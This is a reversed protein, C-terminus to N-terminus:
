QVNAKWINGHMEVVSFFLEGDGLALRQPSAITSIMSRRAGHLHLVSEVPGVPRKTAADLRRMWICRAGDREAVFYIADGSPSWVHEQEVAQDDTLAMWESPPVPSDRFPFLIIRSQDAGVFEAVSAWRGDPSLQGHAYFGSQQVDALVARAQRTTPDVVVLETVPGPRRSSFLVDGAPWSWTYPGVDESLTDAAGGAIARVVMTTRPGPGTWYAVNRGDPSMSPFHGGGTPTLRTERGTLLDRLWVSWDSSRNSQFVLTRGDASVSPWFDIAAADTVRELRGGGAAGTSRTLPLRHLNARRNQNAYYVTVGDETQVVAPSVDEGVGATLRTPVGAVTRGDPSVQLAWLSTVSGNQVSFVIKDNVWVDPQATGALGAEALLAAAGMATSVGTDVDVVWWDRVADDGTGRVGLTALLRGDPSWAPVSAWVLDEALRRSTGGDDDIVWLYSDVARGGTIYALAAGQPSFRPSHGQAVVFQEAGGLAPVTYIGGGNRESRYAIRSGDSSFHPSTADVDDHTVQVANGDPLPQVWIDLSDGGRDSAYALLSGTPAVAPSTTWGSDTTVRVIGSVLPSGPSPRTQSVVWWTTASVVIAFGVVAVAKAIPGARKTQATAVTNAAPEDSGPASLAIRAEGIDRLRTKPDRDLCRALLMRVGAPTDPPLSTLDVDARLVAALTDGMTPGDFLRRGTLMEYLVVGFAWIDSRRDVQRGRAQEPSMYAATGLVIGMQTLAPSTVTPQEARTQLGPGGKPQLGPDESGPVLAKALGFDLVKVTGDDKVKINAPKLDRHIIGAEHAAELAEAIQRAIPLADQV